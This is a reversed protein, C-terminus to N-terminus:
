GGYTLFEPRARDAAAPAGWNRGSFRWSPVLADTKRSSLVVPRPWVADIAALIAVLVEPSPANRPM